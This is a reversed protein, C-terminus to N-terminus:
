RAVSTRQELNKTLEEVQAKLVKERTRDVVLCHHDMFRMKHDHIAVMLVELGSHTGDLRRGHAELTARGLLLKRYKTATWGRSYSM